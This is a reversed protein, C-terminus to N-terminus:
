DVFYTACAHDALESTMKRELSRYGVHDLMHEILDRPHCARFPRERERYHQRILQVFSADDFALGLRACEAEFIHRFEAATPDVLQVKYRIRRWFAEDALAVPDLNTSFVLFHHFPVRIKKGTVLTLYDLGKELPYIWRNLFDRPQVRQRGLDDILLVGCNAKLQFPAEHIKVTDQYVLDLMPLDLEGGAVVFPRYVFAWRSDVKTRSSEYPGYCEVDSPPVERHVREDLLRIVQGDVDIAHPVFIGQRFLAPLHESLFTKGNGPPGFLLLPGGSALAAGLRELTAEGLVMDGVVRECLERPSLAPPVIRQQEVSTVYESLDVPAAGLYPRAAAVEGARALGHETLTFDMSEYGGVGGGGVVVCLHQQKLLLLEHELVSFPLALVRALELGRVVGRSYLTKLLLERIIEPRLLVREPKFEKPPFWSLRGPEAKPGAERSVDSM